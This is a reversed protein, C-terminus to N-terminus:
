GGSAVLERRHGAKVTLMRHTQQSSALHGPTTARPGSTPIRCCAPVFFGFIPLVIPYEVPRDGALQSQEACWGPPLPDYLFEPDVGHVM